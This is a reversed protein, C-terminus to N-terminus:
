EKKNIVIILRTDNFEFSTVDNPTFRTNYVEYTDENYNPKFLYDYITGYKEKVGVVRTLNLDLIEKKMYSEPFM